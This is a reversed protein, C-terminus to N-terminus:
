WGLESGESAPPKDEAKVPRLYDVIGIRQAAVERQTKGEYTSEKAGGTIAVRNGKKIKLLALKRLGDSWVTVQVWDIVDEKKDKDYGVVEAVSFKVVPGKSTSFEKADQGAHGVVSRQQIVAM